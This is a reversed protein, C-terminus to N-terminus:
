IPDISLETIDFARYIYICLYNKVSPNPFPKPLQMCVVFRWKVRFCKHIENPNVSCFIDGKSLVAVHLCSFIIREQHSNISSEFEKSGVLM